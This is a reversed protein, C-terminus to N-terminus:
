SAPGPAGSLTGPRRRRYTWAALLALASWAGALLLHAPLEPPLAAALPELVRARFPAALAEPPAGLSPLAGALYLCLGAGVAAPGTALIAARLLDALRSRERFALLQHLVLALWVCGVGLGLLQTRWPDLAAAQEPLVLPAAGALLLLAGVGGALRELRRRLPTRVALALEPAAEPPGEALRAARRAEAEEQAEREAQRRALEEAAQKRRLVQDSPGAPADGMAIDILRLGEGVQQPAGARRGVANMDLQDPKVTRKQPTRRLRLREWPAAGFFPIKDRWRKPEAM